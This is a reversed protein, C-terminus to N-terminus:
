ILGDKVTEQHMHCDDNMGLTERNLEFFDHLEVSSKINKWKNDNIM